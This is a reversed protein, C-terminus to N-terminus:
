LKYSQITNRITRKPLEEVNRILYFQKGLNGWLLYQGKSDIAGYAESLSPYEEVIGYPFLTSLEETFEPVLHGHGHLVGKMSTCFSARGREFYAYPQEIMGAFRNELFRSAATTDCDAISPLWAKSYFLYHDPVIPDVDRVIGFCDDELLQSEYIIRTLFPNEQTPEMEKEEQRKVFNNILKYYSHQLLRPQVHVGFERLMIAPHSLIGFDIYIPVNSQKLFPVYESLSHEEGRCLEPSFLIASKRDWGACDSMNQITYLASESYDPWDIWSSFRCNLFYICTGDSVFHFNLPLNQDFVRRLRKAISFIKSVYYYAAELPVPEIQKMHVGTCDEYKATRSENVLWLCIDKETLLIIDSMLKSDSEWIGPVHELIMKEKDLYLEFSDKVNISQYAIVSWDAHRIKCIQDVAKNPSAAFIRPLGIDYQRSFRVTLPANNAQNLLEDRIIQTTREKPFLFVKRPFLHNDKFFQMAQYKLGQGADANFINVSTNMAPLDPFGTLRRVQYIYIVGSAYGWEIDLQYQFLKKLKSTIYYLRELLKKEIAKELSISKKLCRYAPQTQEGFLSYVNAPGLGKVLDYNDGHALQAIMVSSDGVDSLPLQTFTIGAYEAELEAQVLVTFFDFQHSIRHAQTYQKANESWVSNVCRLIARYLAPLDEVNMISEFIGPFLAEDGDERDASSRVIVSKCKSTSILKNYALEIEVKFKELQSIYKDHMDFTVCFGPLVHEAGSKNSLIRSLNVVKNGFHIDNLRCISELPQVGTVVFAGGQRDRFFMITIIVYNERTNM